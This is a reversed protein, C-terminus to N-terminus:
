DFGKGQLVFFPSVLVRANFIPSVSVRAKFIPSFFSSVGLRAEVFFSCLHVPSLASIFRRRPSCSDAVLRSSRNLIIRRNSPLLCSLVVFKSSGQPSSPPPVPPVACSLATLPPPLSVLTHTLTALLLRRSAPVPRRRDRPPTCPTPPTLPRSDHTPSVM